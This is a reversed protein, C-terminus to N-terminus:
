DTEICGAPMHDVLAAFRDREASIRTLLEANATAAEQEAQSVAAQEGARYLLIASVAGLLVVTVTVSLATIDSNHSVAAARIAFYVVSPIAIALGLIWLWARDQVPPASQGTDKSPKMAKDASLRM